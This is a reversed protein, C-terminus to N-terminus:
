GVKSISIGGLLQAKSKLESPSDESMALVRIYNQCDLQIFSLNFIRYRLPLIIHILWLIDLNGVNEIGISHHSSRNYVM